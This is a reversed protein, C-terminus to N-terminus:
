SQRLREFGEDDFHSDFTFATAIGRKRMVEFSVADVLSIGRQSAALVTRLALNHTQEEVWEVAFLPIFHEVIDRVAKQGLRRQALSIVEVLVYGALLLVSMGLLIAGDLKDWFSTVHTWVRKM